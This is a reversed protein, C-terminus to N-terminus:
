LYKCKDIARLKTVCVEHNVNRASLGTVESLFKQAASSYIPGVNEYVQMKTRVAFPLSFIRDTAVTLNAISRETYLIM